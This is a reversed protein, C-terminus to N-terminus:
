ANSETIREQNKRYEMPSMGVAKQFTATFHSITRFGVDLAIDGIPKDGRQLFGKAADLRRQQLAQTPSLGTVRKFVRQLHYPSMNLADSLVRLTIPDPFREDLINLVQRVMESDPPLRNPNDPKCRKCPRFGANLADDLARFVRINERKPTRSRCSPFCVIGTSIIGIYYRGDFKSGNSVVTNYLEDTIELM